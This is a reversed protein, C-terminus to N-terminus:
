RHWSNGASWMFIVQIYKDMASQYDRDNAACMDGVWEASTKLRQRMVSSLERLFSDFSVTIANTSPHATTALEAPPLM